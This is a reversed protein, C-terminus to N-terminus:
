IPRVAYLMNFATTQARAATCVAVSESLSVSVQIVNPNQRVSRVDLLQLILRRTQFNSLLKPTHRRVSTDLGVNTFLYTLATQCIDHKGSCPAPQQFYVFMYLIILLILRCIGVAIIRITRITVHICYAIIIYCNRGDTRGDCAPM